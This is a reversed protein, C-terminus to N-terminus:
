SDFVLEARESSENLILDVPSYPFPPMKAALGQHERTHCKKQIEDFTMKTLPINLRSAKNEVEELLSDSLEKGCILEYPVWKEARLTEMVPNKGWIWCKQHNGLLKQRGKRRYREVM